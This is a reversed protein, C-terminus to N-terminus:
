APTTIRRNPNPRNHWRARRQAGGSAFFAQFFLSNPPLKVVRINCSIISIRFSQGAQQSSAGWAPADDSRDTRRDVGGGQSRQLNIRMGSTVDCTTPGVDISIPIGETPRFFRIVLGDGSSAAMGESSPCLESPLVSGVDLPAPVPARIDVRRRAAPRASGWPLLGM